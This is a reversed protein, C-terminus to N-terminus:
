SGCPFGDRCACTHGSCMLGSNTYFEAGPDEPKIELEMIPYPKEERRTELYAGVLAVLDAIIPTLSAGTREEETLRKFALIRSRPNDGLAEYDCVSM